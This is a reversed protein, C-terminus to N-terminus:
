HFKGSCFCLKLEWVVKQNRRKLTKLLSKFKGLSDTNPLTVPDFRTAKAWNQYCGAKWNNNGQLFYIWSKNPRRGSGLDQSVFLSSLLICPKLINLHACNLVSAFSVYLCVYIFIGYHKTYHSHHQLISSDDTIHNQMKPFLDWIKGRHTKSWELETSQSFVYFKFGLFSGALLLSFSSGECFLNREEHSPPTKQISWDLVSYHYCWWLSKEQFCVLVTNLYILRQDECNSQFNCVQEAKQCIYECCNQEEKKKSKM